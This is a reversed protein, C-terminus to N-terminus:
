DTKGYKSIRKMTKGLKKYYLYAKPNPTGDITGGITGTTVKAQSTEIKLMKKLIGTVINYFGPDEEKKDYQQKVIGKAKDWLKEVDAISKGTKQAFSKVINTPM